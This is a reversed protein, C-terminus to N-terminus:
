PFQKEMVYDDMFYGGGIDFVAEERLQFGAKTYFAISSLNRKNVQLMLLSRHQKRLATTVHRLMLEGLGKSRFAELLYLQELKMEAPNATLAYSCYGVAQNNLWLIEFWRDTANIYNSLNESTYRGALMYEIQALSVISAYHARWISAGLEAVVKFDATTLAELRANETVSM